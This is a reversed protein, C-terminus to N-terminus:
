VTAGGMALGTGSGMGAGLISFVAGSRMGAGRSQDKKLPAARTASLSFVLWTFLGIAAVGLPFIRNLRMQGRKAQFRPSSDVNAMPLEHVCAAIPPKASQGGM